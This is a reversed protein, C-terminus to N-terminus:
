VGPEDPRRRRVRLAPGHADQRRGSPGAILTTSGSWYGEELADDLAAIGTSSRDSPRPTAAGHRSPRRPAPVRGTRRPSATCTTAPSSTAAACSASASTRISREASRRTELGIVADAVAFEPSSPRRPPSTSASGSRRSPRPRQTTRRSRSPLSPVRRRRRRVHAAGQLQRDRRHGPQHQKILADLRDLVGPLGDDTCPTASTTTSCRAASSATDFFELSQGYRLCSTSRSRCRRSTSGRGSRRPTTRVPVTRGPDDQRHRSRRGGAHDREAILGGGLVEDLRTNGTSLREM